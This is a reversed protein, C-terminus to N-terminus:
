ATSLMIDAATKLGASCMLDADMKGGDAVRQKSVAKVTGSARIFAEFTLTEVCLFQFKNM